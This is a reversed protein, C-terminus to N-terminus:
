FMIEENVSQLTNTQGFCCWAVSWYFFPDGKTKFMLHVELIWQFCEEQIQKWWTFFCKRKDIFLLVCTHLRCPSSLVCGILCFVLLDHFRRWWNSLVVNAARKVIKMHKRVNCHDSSERGGYTQLRVAKQNLPMMHFMEVNFHRFIGRGKNYM